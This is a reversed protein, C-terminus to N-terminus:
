VGGGLARRGARLAGGDASLKVGRGAQQGAHYSEGDVTVEEKHDCTEFQEEAFNQIDEFISEVVALARRNTQSQVRRMESIMRSGVNMAAGLLFSDRDIERKRPEYDLGMTMMSWCLADLHDPTPATKPQKLQQISNCLMWFVYRVVELDDPRGAVVLPKRPERGAYRYYICRNCLAVAALLQKQWEPADLQDGPLFDEFTFAPREAQDLEAEEIGYKAMVEALRAAATATEEPNGTADNALARLKRLREILKEREAM